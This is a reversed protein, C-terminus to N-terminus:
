VLHRVIYVISDNIRSFYTILDLHVASTAISEALGRHLRDIHSQKLKEEEKKRHDDLVAKIFQNRGESEEGMANILNDFNNTIKDMLYELERYGEESFILKKEVRKEALAVINKDIVDGISELENQIRIYNMCLLSQQRSLEEQSLKALFTIIEGHLMDVKNDLEGIRKRYSKSSSRVATNMTVIMEGVIHSVRYIEKHTMELALGVSRSILMDDIYKVGFPEPKDQEPFLFNFLKIMVPLSPILIIHNILPIFTYSVAIQRALSETNLIERCFWRIWWIFLDEGRFQIMLLLYIWTIALFQFFVHVFASRKAERNLTLSGLVATICTGVAAGMNLPVAQELTITGAVAMAITISVTAGASQILMTFALGTLIGWLPHAVKGMLQIFRISNKLPALSESMIELGLFLLGFAFLTVGIHHYKKRKAAFTISLGTVLFLSSFKTLGPIAVLQPFLTAGLEAGLTVTLSQQFTIFGAGVMATELVTTASSSQNLLTIGLGSLYGRFPGKTLKMLFTKMGRGAMATLNRNMEVMAFLFVALGGLLSFYNWVTM